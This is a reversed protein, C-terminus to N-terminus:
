RRRSHRRVFADVLDDQQETSARDVEITDGDITVSIRRQATHRELWGRLTEVLATLVGGSASSAVILAGLMEADIGKSGDPAPGGRATVVSEVDLELLEARLQRTLREVDEPDLDEGPDLMVSMSVLGCEDDTM